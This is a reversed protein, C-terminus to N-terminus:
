EVELGTLSFIMHLHFGAPAFVYLKVSLFWGIIGILM